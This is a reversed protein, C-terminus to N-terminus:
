PLLYNNAFCPDSLSFLDFLGSENKTLFGVLYVRKFIDYYRLLEPYMHQEQAYLYYNEVDSSPPSEAERIKTWESQM